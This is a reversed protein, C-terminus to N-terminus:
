FLSPRTPYMGFESFWRSQVQDPGNNINTGLKIVYAWAGGFAGEGPLIDLNPTTYLLLGNRYLKAVSNGLGINTVGWCWTAWQDSVNGLNVGTSVPSLPTGQQSGGATVSSWDAVLAFDTIAGGGLYLGLRSRVNGAVDFELAFAKYSITCGAKGMHFNLSYKDRCRIWIEGGVLAPTDVDFPPNGGAIRPNIFTNDESFCNQASRDAWNYRMALSGTPGGTADAVVTGSAPGNLSRSNTVVGVWPKGLAIDTSNLSLGTYDVGMWPVAPTQVSFNVASGSFTFEGADAICMTAPPHSRIVNGVTGTAFSYNGSGNTTTTEISVLGSTLREVTVGSVGAGGSANTVTGSVSSSVSSPACRARSMCPM